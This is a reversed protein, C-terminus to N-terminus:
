LTTIMDYLIIDNVLQQQKYIHFPRNVKTKFNQLNRWVPCYIKEIYARSQRSRSLLERYTGLNFVFWYRILGSLLVINKRRWDNEKSLKRRQRLYSDSQYHSSNSILLIHLYSIGLAINVRLDCSLFETILAMFHTHLLSYQSPLQFM